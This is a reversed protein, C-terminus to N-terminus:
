LLPKQDPLDNFTLGIKTRAPGLVDIAILSPGADPVVPSFAIIGVNAIGGCENCIVVSHEQKAGAEELLAWCCDLIQSVFFDISRQAVVQQRHQLRSDAVAGLVPHHNRDIAIGMPNTSEADGEVPQFAGAPRDRINVQAVMDSDAADEKRGCKVLFQLVRIFEQKYTM